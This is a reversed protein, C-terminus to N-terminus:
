FKGIAKEEYIVHLIIGHTVRLTCSYELLIFFILGQLRDLKYTGKRM